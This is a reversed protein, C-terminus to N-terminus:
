PNFPYPGDRLSSMSKLQVLFDDHEFVRESVLNDSYALRVIPVDERSSCWLQIGLNGQGSDANPYRMRPNVRYKLFFPHLLLGGFTECWGLLADDDPCQNEEWMWALVLRTWAGSSNAESCAKCMRALERNSPLRSKNYSAWKATWYFGFKSALETSM